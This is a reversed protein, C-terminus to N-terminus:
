KNVFCVRKWHSLSSWSTEMGLNDTKRQYKELKIAFNSKTEYSFSFKSHCGILIKKWNYSKASNIKYM